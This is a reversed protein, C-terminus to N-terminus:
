LLGPHRVPHGLYCHRLCCFCIIVLVPYSTRTIAPEVNVLHISYRSQDGCLVRAFPTSFDTCFTCRSFASKTSIAKVRSPWQLRNPKHLGPTDFQTATRLILVLRVTGTCSVCTCAPLSRVSVTSGLFGGMRSCMSEVLFCSTAECKVPMQPARPRTIVKRPSTILALSCRNVTREVQLAGCSLTVTPAEPTVHVWRQLGGCHHNVVHSLESELRGPKM